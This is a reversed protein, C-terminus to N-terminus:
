HAARECGAQCTLAPQLLGCMPVRRSRSMLRGTVALAVRIVQPRARLALECVEAPGLSAGARMGGTVWTEPVPLISRKRMVMACPWSPSMRTVRTGASGPPVPWARVFPLRDPHRAASLM